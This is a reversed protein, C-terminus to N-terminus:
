IKDFLSKGLYDNEDKVGPFCAFIGSGIHTIYENMKDVSGFSNQITIFNKPDNQFSIFLLGADFQGTQPDIGSAYSFSRRLINVGTQHALHVHSDEPLLPEGKEDRKTLDIPTFESKEGMPAGSHRYRGFTAEQEKYSTRDWTELHMQIRRVVLYSGGNLWDESKVWVVPNLKEGSFNATGDKFGFLNRPTTHVNDTSNFGSQSWKMTINSRAMRVLNRVAHFAVQPDDACAQICIDGRNFEERLQDAPFHPLETLAEPRLKEINLKKFFSPSVGFTLTLNHPALGVAEGTDTAPVYHNDSYPKVLKGSMLNASYSTWLKFMDKIKQIDTTHLDVVLFYVQKQATTTIGSQHNGWFPQQNKQAKSVHTSSRKESAQVSVGTALGAGIATVHKIFNRRGSKPYSNTM